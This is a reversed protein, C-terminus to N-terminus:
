KDIAVKLKEFALKIIELPCAINIRIFRKGETGFVTGKSVWLKAKNIIIDYLEEEASVLNNFDLWVLYTGQPEVLKVKPFNTKVFNRIYDLNKSLYENLEDVWQAGNEYAARCAALGMTNLQEYGTKEIELKFKERIIKDAIFINSAQLGALNFTKSPATCIISNNLFKENISGFIIHKHGKYVFDCHIEDSVIIVNHKLCIDGIKTLEDKTWVRGVPNHPSCLIFLKVKNEIIKNEFDQFDITYKGDSYVLPNKVIKRENIEISCYFPYYVPTQILVSDNEKTLARIATSVAFVVGPTKVLWQPKIDFNFRKFFWNRVANFYDKKTESYGFIAHQSVKVLTDAVEPPTQFDMDAVWLPLVDAPLGCETAFDYKLSNTNKRDIIKDFNYKM